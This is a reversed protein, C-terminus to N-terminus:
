QIIKHSNMGGLSALPSLSRHRGNPACTLADSLLKASASTAGRPACGRSNTSPSWGNYASPGDEAAARPGKGVSGPGSRSTGPSSCAAPSSLARTKGEPHPSNPLWPLLHSPELTVSPRSWCFWRRKGSLCPLTPEATDGMCLLAALPVPHGLFNPSHAGGWPPLLEEGAGRGRRRRERKWGRGCIEDRHEQSQLSQSHEWRSAGELVGARDRGSQCFAGQSKVTLVQQSPHPCRKNM